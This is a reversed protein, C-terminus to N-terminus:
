RAAEPEYRFRDASRIAPAHHLEQWARALPTDVTLTAVRWGAAALVGAAHQSSPEDAVPQHAAAEWTPVDLLLALAPTNGHPSRALKRAQEDSLQGAIVILLGTSGPHTAALGRALDPRSSPTMVALTDLLRDEFSGPGTVSGEATVLQGDFGQMALHVGISAAV